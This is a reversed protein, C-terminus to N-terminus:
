GQDDGSPGYIAPVRGGMPRIYSSLQGRHHVMDFLFGWLINSISDKWASQGGVFMEAARPMLSDDLKALRPRLEDTARDWAEVIEAVSKPRPRQDMDIRGMDLLDALMRQEEALQWALDGATTSREHPRWSLRDVPIARLVKGFAPVESEWREVFFKALSM